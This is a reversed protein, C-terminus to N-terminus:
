TLYVKGIFSSSFTIQINNSDVYKEEAWVVNNASDIVTISPFKGLNHPINWVASPVSQNHTYQLISPINSLPVKSGADLPAVGGATGVDDTNIHKLAM